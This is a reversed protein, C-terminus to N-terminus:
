REGVGKAPEKSKVRELLIEVKLRRAKIRNLNLESGRAAEFQLKAFEELKKLSDLTNNYLSVRQPDTEASELEAELLTMRDELAQSMEIRANKALNMSLDAASKLLAIREKQLENVKRTSVDIKDNPSDKQAGTVALLVVAVFLTAKGM